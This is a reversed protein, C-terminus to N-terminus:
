SFVLAKMTSMAREQMVSERIRKESETRSKPVLISRIGILLTEVVFSTAYDKSVSIFISRVSIM